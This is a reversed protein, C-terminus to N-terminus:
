SAQFNPHGTVTLELDATLVGAVPSKLSYKSIFAVFAYTTPVGDPFVIKWNYGVGASLGGNEFLKGLGSVFGHGFLNGPVTAAVSAPVFYLPLTIVGADRLTTIKDRWPASPSTHSTVDVVAASISPGTIDGINAISYFAEPSGSGIKLLTGIAPIAIPFTSM